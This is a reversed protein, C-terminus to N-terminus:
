RRGTGERRTDQDLATLHAASLALMAAVSVVITM